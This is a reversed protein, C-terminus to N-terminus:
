NGLQRAMPKRFFNHLVYVSINQCRHVIGLLAQTAASKEALKNNNSPQGVFNLGNFIVTSRFKKNKLQTTKYTPAGHGARALLTQLENKSNDGGGDISRLPTSPLMEKTIKKSSTPVKMQILEELENKLRLYTDALSPKMFFEFYGGLM